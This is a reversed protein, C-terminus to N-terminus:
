CEFSGVPGSISQQTVDDLQQRGDWARVLYTRAEEPNQDAIAKLGARYYEMPNSPIPAFNSGAAQDKADTFGVQINKTTDKDPDYGARTVNEDDIMEYSTPAVQSDIKTEAALSASGGLADQIKLEMQWTRMQDAALKTEDVNLKKADEILAQAENYQGRDFALQSQSILSRVKMTADDDVAVVPAQTQLSARSIELLKELRDPDGIKDNFQVDFTRAHKLLTEAGDFDQYYLLAEAQVLFFSAAGANYDPHQGQAMEVLQNQRDVLTQITAPSDGLADFNAPLAAAENLLSEAQTLDSQALAQRARLLVKKAAEDINAEGVVPAPTATTKVAPATQTQGYTSAPAQVMAFSAILASAWIGKLRVSVRM